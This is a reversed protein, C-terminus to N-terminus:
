CNLDQEDMEILSIKLDELRQVEDESYHKGTYPNRYGNEEAVIFIVPDLEEIVAQGERLRNLFNIKAKRDM